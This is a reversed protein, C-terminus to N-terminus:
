KSVRMYNGFKTKKTIENNRHCLGLRKQWLLVGENNNRDPIILFEQCQEENIYEVELLRRVITKYPMLFVDMLEIIDKLEISNRKLGRIDIETLIVQKPVLFEAAFRNAKHEEKTVERNSQDDLILSNLVEWSENTFWLHYLEHAAAFLQKELPIGTNINVFYKVGRKVIFGCVENDNIPYYLTKSNKELINFIDERIIQNTKKYEGLKKNAETEINKCEDESLPYLTIPSSSM